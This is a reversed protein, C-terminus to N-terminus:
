YDDIIPTMKLTLVWKTEGGNLTVNIDTGGIAETFNSKLWKFRVNKSIRCNKVNFVVNGDSQIYADQLANLPLISLIIDNSPLVKNSCFYGNNALGECTFFYYNSAPNPFGNFACFSIVEVKYDNYPESFGGFKVDYYNYIAENNTRDDSCIVYTFAEDHLLKSKKIERLSNM